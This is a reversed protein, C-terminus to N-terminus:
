RVRKEEGGTVRGWLNLYDTLSTKQNLRFSCTVLGTHVDVSPHHHTRVNLLQHMINWSSLKGRHTSGESGEVQRITRKLGGFGVTRTKDKPYGACPLSFFLPVPM